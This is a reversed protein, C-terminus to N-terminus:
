EKLKAQKRQWARKHKGIEKECFADEGEKNKVKAEAKREAATAKRRAGPPLTPLAFAGVKPAATQVTTQEWVSTASTSGTVTAPASSAVDGMAADVCFRRVCLSTQDTTLLGEVMMAGTTTMMVM